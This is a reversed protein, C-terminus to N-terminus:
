EPKGGLKKIDALIETIAADAAAIHRDDQENRKTLDAIRAQLEDIQHQRSKRAGEVREKEARRDALVGRLVQVSASEPEPAPEVPALPVELAPISVRPTPTPWHFEDGYPDGFKGFSSNL